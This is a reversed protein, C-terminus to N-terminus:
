VGARTAAAQYRELTRKYEAKEAADAKFYAETQQSVAERYNGAHFNVMAKVALARSPNHGPVKQIAEAARMAVAMDRNEPKIKPDSAIKTALEDLFLADDSYMALLQEAYAYGAKPSNQDVVLMEFKSLAVDSFISKDHAILEDMQSEAIKWNKVARASDISRLAPAAAEVLKSNYRGKIVRGIIDEFKPDLPHGIFQIIGDPGVIFACPIGGQGAAKMWARDTANREDVAVTYEMGKGQKQVFPRVEDVKETSVGIITLKSGYKKQLETMHPISKRCPACWTAWFEVVYTKGPEFTKVEKGKVWTQITLEPAKSGVALKNQQASAAAAALLLGMAAVLTKRLM